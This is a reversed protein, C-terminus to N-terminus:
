LLWDFNRCFRVRLNACLAMFKLSISEETKQYLYTGNLCVIKNKWNYEKHLVGVNEWNMDHENNM